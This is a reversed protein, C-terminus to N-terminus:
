EPRAGRGARARDHTHSPTTGNKRNVKKKITRGEEEKNM